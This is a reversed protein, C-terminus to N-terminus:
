LENTNLDEARRSSSDFKGKRKQRYETFLIRLDDSMKNKIEAVEICDYSYLPFIAKQTEKENDERDDLRGRQKIDKDVIFVHDTFLNDDLAEETKLSNFLSKIDNPEGFVYHWFRMDDYNNIEKQLQAAEHESGKPLVIVIQFKKFGKFKDYVLEKLNSAAIANDVPENGLFGLITIHDQLQIPVESDSVFLQLENVENDVIELPNYNHTSPYLFLLFIVPLFFLVGLVLATKLPMKRM